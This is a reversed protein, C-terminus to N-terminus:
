YVLYPLYVFYGMHPVEYSLHVFWELALNVYIETYINSMKKKTPAVNKYQELDTKM